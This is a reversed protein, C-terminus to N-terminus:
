RAAMYSVRWVLAAPAEPSTRPRMKGAGEAVPHHHLQRRGKEETQKQMILGEGTELSRRRVVQVTTARGVADLVRTLLWIGGERCRRSM